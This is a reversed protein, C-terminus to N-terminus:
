APASSAPADGAPARVRDGAPERARERALRALAAELAEIRALLAATSLGLTDRTSRIEAAAPVPPGDGISVELLRLVGDGTLVDVWGEDASRAAVRGPVRGAYVPPDPRPVARRVVLRRADLHTFAGPFPPSLARV